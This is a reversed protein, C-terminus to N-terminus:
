LKRSVTVNTAQDLKERPKVDDLSVKVRDKYSYLFQAFVDGSSTFNALSIEDNSIFRQALQTESTQINYPDILLCEKRALREFWSDIFSKLNNDKLEFVKKCDNLTSKDGMSCIYNILSFDVINEKLAEFVLNDKLPINEKQAAGKNSVFYILKNPLILKDQILYDDPDIKSLYDQIRSILKSYGNMKEKILARKFIKQFEAKEQNVKQDINEGLMEESLYAELPMADFFNEENIEYIGNNYWKDLLYFKQNLKFLNFEHDLSMSKLIFNSIQADNLKSQLIYAYITCSGFQKETLESNENIMERTYLIVEYWFSKLDDLNKIITKQFLESNSVLDQTNLYIDKITEAENQYIGDVSKVFRNLDKELASKADERANLIPILFKSNKILYKLVEQTKDSKQLMKKSINNRPM